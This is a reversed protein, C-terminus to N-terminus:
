KKFHNKWKKMTNEHTKRHEPTDNGVERLVTKLEKKKLKDRKKPKSLDSPYIPQHPETSKGHSIHAKRQVISDQSLSKHKKPSLVLDPIYDKGIKSEKGEKSAIKVVAVAGDDKRQDIVAIRRNKGKNPKGSFFGDTTIYIKGVSSKQKSKKPPKTESKKKM